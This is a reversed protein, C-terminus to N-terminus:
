AAHCAASDLLCFPRVAYRVRRTELRRFSGGARSQTLSPLFRVTDAVFGPATPACAGTSAFPTDGMARRAAILLARPEASSHSSKVAYPAMAAVTNGVCNKGEISGLEAIRAEKAVNPTPNKARGAPPTTSPM